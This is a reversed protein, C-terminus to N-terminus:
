NFINLLNTNTALSLTPMEWFEQLFRGSLKEYVTADLTKCMLAMGPLHIKPNLGGCVGNCESRWHRWHVILTKELQFHRKLSLDELQGGSRAPHSRTFVRLSCDGLWGLCAHAKLDASAWPLLWQLATQGLSPLRRHGSEVEEEASEGGGPFENKTAKWLTGEESRLLGLSRTFKQSQPLIHCYLTIGHPVSGAAGPEPSNEQTQWTTEKWAWARCTGVGLSQLVSCFPRTTVCSDRLALLAGALRLMQVLARELTLLFYSALNPM